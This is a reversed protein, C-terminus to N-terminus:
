LLLTKETDHIILAGTMPQLRLRDNQHHGEMVTEIIPSELDTTHMAIAKAIETVMMTTIAMMAIQIATGRETGRSDKGM